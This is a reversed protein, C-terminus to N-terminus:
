FEVKIGLLIGDQSLDDVTFEINRKQTFFVADIHSAIWVAALSYAWYYQSKYVKDYADYKEQVRAPDKEDLYDQHKLSTRILSQITGALTITGLAAWMYAKTEAGRHWQEWGPFVLSRWPTEIFGTQQSLTKLRTQQQELYEIKAKDFMTLLKPSTSLPDLTYFTDLAIINKFHNLAVQQEGLQFARFAKYKHFAIKDADTLDQYMQRADALLSDVQQNDFNNYAKELHMEFNQALCFRSLIITVILLLKNM